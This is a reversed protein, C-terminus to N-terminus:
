HNVLFEKTNLLAWLLDRAAERVTATEGFYSAARSAEAETPPRSLTRLYAQRVIRALDDPSPAAPSSVAPPNDGRTGRRAAALAAEAQALAKGDVGQEKLRELRRKAQAVVREANRAKGVAARDAEVKAAEYPRSVTEVWGGKREIQALMDRDNQLFVTQLLSPELSRDCDCNSERTSRGFVALAYKGSQGWGVATAEAVARGGSSAAMECAAADAATAMRIADLAVEAPIRRPV